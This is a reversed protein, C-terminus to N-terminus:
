LINREERRGDAAVRWTTKYQREENWWLSKLLAGGNLRKGLCQYGPHDEMIKNVHFLSPGHNRWLAHSGTPILGICCFKSFKVNLSTPTLIAADKDVFSHYLLYGSELDGLVLNNTWLELLDTIRVINNEDFDPFEGVEIPPPTTDMPPTPPLQNHQSDHSMGHAATRTWWWIADEFALVAPSLGPDKWHNGMRETGKVLVIVMQSCPFVNDIELVKPSEMSPSNWFVKTTQQNVVALCRQIIIYSTKQFARIQGVLFYEASTNLGESNSVIWVQPITEANKARGNRQNPM